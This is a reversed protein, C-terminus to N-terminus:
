SCFGRSVRSFHKIGLANADDLVNSRLGKSTMAEKGRGLFLGCRRNRGGWPFGPFGRSEALESRM